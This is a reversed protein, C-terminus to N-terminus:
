AKAFIVKLELEGHDETSVVGSFSPNGIGYDAFLVPITGNVVFTSGSRAAKLVVTVAKTVGHLTLKGKATVSVPTSDTPVTGLDIPATLEFVSTPYTSTQMIRGQFQNDRRNQDSSVSTMDVTLKAATVTTGDIALTGTVASTRGVAENNQGFLVEKVRYGVISDSTPKWTGSLGGSATPVTTTESSKDTPELTLRAPADGEIFHIYVFTGASVALVAAVLGGVIWKVRNSV